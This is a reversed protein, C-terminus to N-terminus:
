KFKIIISPNNIKNMMKLQPWLQLVSSSDRASFYWCRRKKWACERSSINKGREVKYEWLFVKSKEEWVVKDSKFIGREKSELKLLSRRNESKLAIEGM